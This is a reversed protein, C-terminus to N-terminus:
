DSIWAVIQKYGKCETNNFESLDPRYHCGVNIKALMKLTKNSGEPIMQPLIGYIRFYYSGVPILVLSTVNILNSDSKHKQSNDARFRSM